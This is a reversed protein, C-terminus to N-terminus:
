SMTDIGAACCLSGTMGIYVNKRGYCRRDHEIVLSQICTGASCLLVEIDVTRFTLASVSGTWGM